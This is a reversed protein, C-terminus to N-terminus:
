AQTFYNQATKVKERVDLNEDTAMNKVKEDFGLQRLKQIRPISCNQNDEMRMLNILCLVTVVRIDPNNHEMFCLVRKLITPREMISSRHRESGTAIHSIVFLIQKIIEESDSCLKNEIINMLQTEGLGKFAEEIDYIRSCALNRLLNLAQEQIDVEPDSILAEMKTYTLAKMVADKIESECHYVLNKLAWVANLRLTNDPSHALEVLKEIAGQELVIKKMPSFELVINCLTACATTQVDTSEDSLLKFLPTAIGADVLSTRLMSISRSLSRACQCAAARIGYSHHSMATIIHPIIKAEVVLKRGDDSLISIAALAMLANSDYYSHDKDSFPIIFNALKSVADCDCAAKQLKESDRILCALVHPAEERVSTKEDLLKVLTPLVTSIIDNSYEIITNTRNLHTICKASTLRMTPSKDGVLKLMIRVPAENRETKAEVINKCFEPNERCLYALADLAAEQAKPISCTLLNILPRLANANAIQNQQENTDCCRAIITAALEATHIAAVKERDTKPNLSDPNLLAILNNLYCDQFIDNKDAVPSKYIVKLTRAAAEILRPDKQLSLCDLLPKVADHKILESVNEEGGYAFSGLVIVAQIQIQPDTTKFEFFKVLKSIVNLRIYLDKKTKNGIIKNKIFRLAKIRVLPDLSSLEVVAQEHRTSNM